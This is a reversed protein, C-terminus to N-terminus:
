VWQDEEGGAQVGGATPFGPNVRILALDSLFLTKNAGKKEQQKAQKRQQQMRVTEPAGSHRM